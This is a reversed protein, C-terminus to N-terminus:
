LCSLHPQPDGRVHRQQRLGPRERRPAPHPLDGPKPAHRPVVRGGQGAQCAPVNNARPSTRPRPGPPLQARTHPALAATRVSTLPTPTPRPEAGAEPKSLPGLSAVTGAPHRMLRTKGGQPYSFPKHACNRLSHVGGKQCSGTRHHETRHRHDGPQGTSDQTPLLLRPPHKTRPPCDGHQRPARSM